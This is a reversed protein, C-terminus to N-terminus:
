PPPIERPLEAHRGKKRMSLKVLSYQKSFAAQDTKNQFRALLAEYGQKTLAKPIGREPDEAGLHYTVQFGRAITECQYAGLRVSDKFSYFSSTQNMPNQYTIFLQSALVEKNEDTAISDNERGQPNSYWM